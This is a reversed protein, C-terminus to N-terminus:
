PKVPNEVYPLLSFANQYQPCVVGDVEEITFALTVSNTLGNEDTWQADLQPTLEQSPDAGLNLLAEGRAGTLEMTEVAGAANLTFEWEATGTEQIGLFDPIGLTDFLQAADKDNGSFRLLWGGDERKEAKSECGQFYRALAAKQDEDLGLVTAQTLAERVQDAATQFTGIQTEGFYWGYDPDGGTGATQDQIPVDLRVGYWNDNGSLSPISACVEQASFYASFDLADGTQGGVTWNELKVKLGNDGTELNAVGSLNKSEGKWTVEGLAGVSVPEPLPKVSLFGRELAAAPNAAIQIATWNMMVGIAAVAFLLAPILIFLRWKKPKKPPEDLPLHIEPEELVVDGTQTEPDLEKLEM